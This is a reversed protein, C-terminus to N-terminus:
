HKLAVIEEEVALSEEAKAELKMYTEYLVRDECIDCIREFKGKKRRRKRM